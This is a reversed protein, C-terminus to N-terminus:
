ATAHTQALRTAIDAKVLLRDVVVEITHNKRRDLRPPEDLPHLTGDIRARTFGARAFGELEQRYEGKRGRVVPALIMIRDGPKALEGSLM